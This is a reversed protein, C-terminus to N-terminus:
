IDENAIEQKEKSSLKGNVKDEYSIYIRKISISVMIYGLDTEWITEYTCKDNDLAQLEYGDGEYYPDSFYEYSIGKGYKKEYIEKVSLYERKLSKWSKNKPLAVLVKWAINTKKSGVVFVNCEKNIFSGKLREVNKDSEVSIFGKCKLESAVNKINGNLITKKFSIHKQSFVSMSCFLCIIAMVCKLKM